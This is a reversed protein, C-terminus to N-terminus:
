CSGAFFRCFIECFRFFDWSERLSIKIGDPINILINTFRSIFTVELYWCAVCCFNLKYESGAYSCIEGFILRNRTTKVQRIYMPCATANAVIQVAFVRSCRRFTRVYRLQSHLYIHWAPVFLALGM